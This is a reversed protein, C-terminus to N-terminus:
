YCNFIDETQETFIGWAVDEFSIESLDLKSLFNGSWVPIKLGHWDDFLIQQIIERLEENLQIRSGSPVNKLEKEFQKRLEQKQKKSFEM